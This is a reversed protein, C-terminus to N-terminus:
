LQGRQLSAHKRKITFSRPHTIGTNVSVTCISVKVSIIKMTANLNYHGCKKKTKSIGLIPKIYEEFGM